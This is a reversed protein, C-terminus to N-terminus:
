DRVSRREQHKSRVRKKADYMCTTTWIRVLTARDQTLPVPPPDLQLSLIDSENGLTRRLVLLFSFGLPFPFFFSPQGKQSDMPQPAYGLTALSLVIVGWPSTQNAPYYLNGAQVQAYLFTRSVYVYNFSNLYRLFKRV